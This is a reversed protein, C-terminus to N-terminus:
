DFMSLQIRGGPKPKGDNAIEKKIETIGEARPAKLVAQVKNWLIRGAWIESFYMPTYWTDESSDPMLVPGALPASLTDAIHVYGACGILSLQIYCMMAAVRDLDQGVFLVREQYNIGKERLAEALAILTAGGGCAPDNASMWGYRAIDETTNENMVSMAMLRCINYPTFFQGTWHNGLELEMYMQGLFDQYPNEELSIIIESFLESFRTFEEPAYKSRIQHYQEEREQAHVRDTCNAISIAFLNVMDQWREWRQNWNCIGDFLKVFTKQKTGTVNKRSM